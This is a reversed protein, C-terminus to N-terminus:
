VAYELRSIITRYASCANISPPVTLSGRQGSIRMAHCIATAPTRPLRALLAACVSGALATAFSSGSALKVQDDSAAVPVDRGLALFGSAIVPGWAAYSDPEGTDAAAAVPFVNPHSLLPHNYSRPTNGAPALVAAEHIRVRELAAMLPAIFSRSDQLFEFGLVIVKVARDCACIIREAIRSAVGTPRLSGQLVDDDVADFALLQAGRCAGLSPACGLVVSAMATAHRSSQDRRCPGDSEVSAGALAAHRTDVAGDILAIVAPSYAPVSRFLETLGMSQMIFQRRIALVGLMHGVEKTAIAVARSYFQCEVADRLILTL